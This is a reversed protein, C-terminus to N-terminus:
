EKEKIASAMFYYDRLNGEVVVEKGVLKKLEPDDFANGGVRRLVFDGKATEIYVADHESKSSKGFKRIVVKGTLEMVAIKDALM